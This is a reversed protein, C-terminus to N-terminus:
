KEAKRKVTWVMDGKEGGDDSNIPDEVGGDDVRNKGFSWVKGDQYRLPLGMFSCIPVRPLYRPVLEELKEPYRAHEVEYWALAVSARLLARRTRETTDREFTRHVSILDRVLPNHSDDLDKFLSQSAAIREWPSLPVLPQLRLEAASLQTIAQARTIKQSFLCRWGPYLKPPGVGLNSFGREFSSWPASLLGDEMILFETEWGRIVDPRTSELADLRAAFTELEKASLGHGNLVDRLGEVTMGECVMQILNHILLGGRGLDQAVAIGLAGYELAEADRGLRHAHSMAGNIFRSVKLSSSIYPFDLAHGKEWELEEDVTRCRMGRRLAEFQPRLDAFLNELLHEDPPDEEINVSGEIEPVANALDQPVAEFAAFAPGYYTWANGDIPEGWPVPRTWDRHRVAALKAKLEKRHRELVRDARRHGDGVVGGLLLGMAGFLGLVGKWVRRKM